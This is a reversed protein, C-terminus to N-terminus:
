AGRRSAATLVFFRALIRVTAVLPAGFRRSKTEPACYESRSSGLSEEAIKHYATM